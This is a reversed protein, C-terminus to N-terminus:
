SIRNRKSEVYRKYRVRVSDYAKPLDVILRAVLLVAAGTAMWDVTACFGLGAAFYSLTANVTDDISM